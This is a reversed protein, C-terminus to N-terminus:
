KKLYPRLKEHVTTGDTITYLTHATTKGTEGTVLSTIDFSWGLFTIQVTVEVIDQLKIVLLKGDGKKILIRQETLGYAEDEKKMLFVAIAICIIAPIARSFVYFFNSFSRELGACSYILYCFGLLSFCLCVGIVISYPTFKPIGAWLLEEHSELHKKLQQTAKETKTM